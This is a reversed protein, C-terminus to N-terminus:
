AEPPVPLPLAESPPTAPPSPRGRLARKLVRALAEALPADEEPLGRVSLYVRSTIPIETWQEPSGPPARRANLTPRLELERLLQGLDSLEAPTTVPTEAGTPTAGPGPAASTALSVPPTAPSAPAPREAGARHRIGADALGYFRRDGPADQRAEPPAAPAPAASAPRSAPVAPPAAPEPLDPTPPPAMLAQVEDRPLGRELIQGLAQADLARLARGIEALTATLLQGSTQLDKVGKIFLLRRLCEDPYRTNPGRRGVKPVLGSQIYYVITRRDFGTLEILDSLAYSRPDAM